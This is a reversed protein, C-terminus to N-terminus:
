LPQDRGGILFVVHALLDLVVLSLVEAHESGENHEGPVRQVLIRSTERERVSVGYEIADAAGPCADPPTGCYATPSAPPRTVTRGRPRKYHGGGIGEQHRIGGSEAPDSDNNSSQLRFIAGSEFANDM